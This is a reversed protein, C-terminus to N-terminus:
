EEKEKLSPYIRERYKILADFVCPELAIENLINIGDSSKVWIHYGDFSAYLGDGIYSAHKGLKEILAKSM